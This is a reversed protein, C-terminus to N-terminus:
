YHIYIYMSDHDNAFHEKKDTKNKYYLQLKLIFIKTKNKPLKGKM